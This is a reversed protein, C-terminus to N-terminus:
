SSELVTLYAVYVIAAVVLSLAVVTVGVFNDLFVEPQDWIYAGGEVALIFLAGYVAAVAIGRAVAIALGARRSNLLEIVFLFALALLYFPEPLAEGLMRPGRISLWGYYALALLIGAVFTMVVGYGSTNEIRPTVGSSASSDADSDSRDSVDRSDGDTM